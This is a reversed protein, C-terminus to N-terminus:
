EEKDKLPCKSDMECVSRKLQAIYGAITESQEQKPRDLKQQLECAVSYLKANENNLRMAEDRWWALEKSLKHVRGKLVVCLILLVWVCVLSIWIM